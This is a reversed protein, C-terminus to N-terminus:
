FIQPSWKIKLLVFLPILRLQSGFLPSWQFSPLSESPPGSLNAQFIFFHCPPSRSLWWINNPPDSWHLLMWLSPDALNWTCLINSQVKSLNIRTETVSESTLYETIFYLSRYVSCQASLCHGYLLTSSALPVWRCSLEFGSLCLM